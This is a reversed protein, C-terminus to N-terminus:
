CWASCASWSSWDWASREATWANAEPPNPRPAPTGGAARPLRSAQGVFPEPGLAAGRGRPRAAHRGASAPVARARGDGCRDAAPETGSRRQAVAGGPVRESSDRSRLVAGGRRLSYRQGGHFYPGTRPLARLSPTRYAGILRMEKLGIPVSAFRGTPADPPPLNDKADVGINHFDHDTFLPGRHCVACNAKGHFLQYGRVLQGAADKDSLKGNGLTKLTAADLAALFHESGLAAAKAQQRQAEARDYLSDGSLLTRMYTALAKAIADQTPKPIGFVAEFGARFAKNADLEQVLGGWVHTTEPPPRDADAPREDELSRVVVEELYVARGDWFQHRNYVANILSPTNVGGRRTRARAETFGHEPDHCTACAYSDGGSRLMPAFFLDRGLRWKAYTPPNAAPILPTPDPLGRPVKIRFRQLQEAAGFAAVAELPPLGLYITHAGAGPLPDPNWFAPLAAWHPATPPVFEIPADYIADTPRLWTWIAPLPEKERPPTVTPAAASSAPAAPYRRAQECSALMVM